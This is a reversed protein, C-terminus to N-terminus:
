ALLSDLFCTIGDTKVFAEKRFILYFRKFDEFDSKMAGIMDAQFFTERQSSSSRHYIRWENGNTLIGFDKGTARLLLDLEVTPAIGAELPQPMPPAPVPDDGEEVAAQRVPAASTTTFDNGWEVARGICLASRFFSASGRSPEAEGFEAGSGFCVHDVRAVRGDSLEVPEFVTHTFGLAHLVPGVLFYRTEVATPGGALLTSHKEYTERIRDFALQAEADVSKWDALDEMTELREGSFLPGSNLFIAAEAM